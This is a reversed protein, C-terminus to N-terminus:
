NLKVVCVSQDDTMRALANGIVYAVLQPHHNCLGPFAEESWGRRIGDSTSVLSVGRELTMETKQPKKHEHGLVGPAFAFHQVQGNRCLHTAMDGVGLMHLGRTAVDFECAIAVAGRANSRLHRDVTELLQMISDAQTLYKDLHATALEANEGHGLGDLHLLRLHDARIDVYVHDGNHRDDSLSRVFLGLQCFAEADSPRKAMRGAALPHFRCWVVTGHWRDRGSPMQSFIGFEDALRQMSGLGKGLTGKTSFGDEQALGPNGMGPGYDFSVVDLMGGPQEWIQLMGKGGAHKILNTAMESAVLAMNERRADAFGLRRAVSLLRSRLLIAASESQIPDSFLLKCAASDLTM